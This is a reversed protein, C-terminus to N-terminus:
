QYSADQEQGAYPYQPPATVYNDPPAAAGTESPHEPAGHQESPKAPEHDDTLADYVLM